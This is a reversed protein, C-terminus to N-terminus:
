ESFEFPGLCAYGVAFGGVIIGGALVQYLPTSPLLGTSLTGIIVLVTAVGLCAYQRARNTM